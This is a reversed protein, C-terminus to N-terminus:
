KNNLKERHYKGMQGRYYRIRGYVNEFVTFYGENESYIKRALSKSPSNPFKELYELIIKTTEKANKALKSEM